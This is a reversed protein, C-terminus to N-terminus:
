MDFFSFSWFRDDIEPVSIIQDSQSLDYFISSYMTDNNPRVVKTWGPKVVDREHYLVNIASGQKRAFRGYAFLPYGYQWRTLQNAM